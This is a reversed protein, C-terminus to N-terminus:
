LDCGAEVVAMVKRRDGLREAALEFAGVGDYASVYFDPGRYPLVRYRKQRSYAAQDAGRDAARGGECNVDRLETM